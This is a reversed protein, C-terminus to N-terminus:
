RRGMAQEEREKRKQWFEGNRRQDSVMCSIRCFNEWAEEATTANFTENIDFYESCVRFEYDELEDDIKGRNISCSFIEIYKAFKRSMYIHITADNKGLGEMCDGIRTALKELQVRSVQTNM